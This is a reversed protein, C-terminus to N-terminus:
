NGTSNLHARVTVVSLGLAKAAEKLTKGQNLKAWALVRKRNKEAKVTMHQGRGDKLM